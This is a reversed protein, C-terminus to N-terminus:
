VLRPGLFHGRSNPLQPSLCRSEWAVHAANHVSLFEDRIRYRLKSFDVDEDVVRPEFAVGIEPVGSFFIVVRDQVDIEFAQKENGLRKHLVAHPCLGAALDNVDARHM